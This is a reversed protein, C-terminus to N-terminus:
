VITTSNQLFYITTEEKKEIIFFMTANQELRGILNIQKKIDSNELESQKRLDIAILKYHDKFYEYDLLNGTTYDSNKSIDITKGYTEENNKVPIEFFPKGDIIVNYYKIEVKPVYYNSFSTRDEENEFSLVFRRNVNSFTPDILYNLNNNITQNSMQSMYKNWKITRKFGSKLKNLLENDEKASLTVVPVYLKCETIKFVANTPNNIRVTATTINSERTAKSATVCNEYWSLTLSVEYNILPMDLNRWINSLYKLPIAFATDKETNNGELEGTISTKYNFSESDKISYNIRNNGDGEGSSNPEDRYYNFLSGTIKRYNKSYELLNYMPMVIDLDDANEISEGNIKSICSIFPANNKFALKKDYGNNNPNTVTIKGKALIYAESYDCLDSRLM